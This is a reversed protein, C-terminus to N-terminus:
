DTNTTISIMIDSPAIGCPELEEVLREYFLRKQDEPRPRSVMSIMITKESREIGLGTDEVVMHGIIHEQYIQYRDRLPVAFATLVARHIGNLLEKVEDQTRGTYADIRLLPM